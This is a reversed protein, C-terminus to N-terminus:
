PVGPANRPTVVPGPNSAEGVRCGLVGCQHRIIMPVCRVQPNVHDGYQQRFIPPRHHDRVFTHGGEAILKGLETVRMLYGQRLVRQSEAQRDALWSMLDNPAHRPMVLVPVHPDRFSSARAVAQKKTVPQRGPRHLEQALADCRTRGAIHPSTVQSGPDQPQITPGRSQEELLRKLREWAETM